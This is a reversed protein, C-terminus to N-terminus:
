LSGQVQAAYPLILNNLLRLSVGIVLRSACKQVGCVSVHSACYTCTALSSIDISTHVKAHQRSLSKPTPVRDRPSAPRAEAKKGGEITDQKGVIILM